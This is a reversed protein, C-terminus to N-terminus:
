LKFNSFLYGKYNLQHKRLRKFTTSPLKYKNQCAKVTEFYEIFNLTNFDYVWVGLDKEVIPM